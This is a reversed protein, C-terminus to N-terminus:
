AALLLFMVQFVFVRKILLRRVQQPRNTTRIIIFESYRDLEFNKLQQKQKEKEEDSPDAKRKKGKGKPSGKPSATPDEVQARLRGRNEFWNELQEWEHSSNHVEIGNVHMEACKHFLHGEKCAQFGRETWMEGIQEPTKGAYEPRKRLFELTLIKRALKLM